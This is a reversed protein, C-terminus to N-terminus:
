FPRNWSVMVMCVALNWIFTGSKLNSYLLDICPAVVVARGFVKFFTSMMEAMCAGSCASPGLHREAEIVFEAAPVISFM